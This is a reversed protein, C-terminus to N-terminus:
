DGAPRNYGAYNRVIRAQVAISSGDPDYANNYIVRVYFAGFPLLVTHRTAENHLVSNILHARAVGNTITISTNAVEATQFIWESDEFDTIDELFRWNGDDTYGVTSICTILTAGQALPDNSIVQENGTLGVLHVTADYDSWFEDDDIPRTSKIQTIVETGTTHATESTLALDIYLLAQYDPHVQVANGRVIGNMAIEQCADVLENSESLM